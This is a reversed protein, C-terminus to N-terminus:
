PCRRPVNEWIDAPDAASATQGSTIRPGLPCQTRKQPHCIQGQRYMYHDWLPIASGARRGLGRRSSKYPLPRNHLKLEFSIRDVAKLGYCIDGDTLLLGLLSDNRIGTRVNQADNLYATLRAECSFLGPLSHGGDGAHHAGRHQIQRLRPSTQAMHLEADGEGALDLGGAQGGLPGNQGIGAQPPRLGPHQIGSLDQEPHVQSHLDPGALGTLAGYALPYLRRLFM